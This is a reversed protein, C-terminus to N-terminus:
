SGPSADPAPLPSLAPLPGASGGEIRSPRGDPGPLCPDPRSAAERGGPTPPYVCAGCALNLRLLSKRHDIMSEYYKNKYAATEQLKLRQVYENVFQLGRAANADRPIEDRRLELRNRRPNQAKRDYRRVDDWTDNVADYAAEVEAAVANERSALRARTQAVIQQAKALNGQQRNYIPMPVTLGVAWGVRNPLVPSYTYPQALLTVDDLRSARVADVDALARCLDWRQAQLDPRNAFAVQKLWAMRERRDADTEDCFHREDYIRGRLRIAEPDPLNLLLALQRRKDRLTDDADDAEDKKDLLDENADNVKRDATAAADSDPPVHQRALQARERRATCLRRELGSVERAHAKVTEQAALTEVFATCLSDAQIRVFNQLNWEASRLACVASKVRTRRKGSVDMPYAVNVDAQMPALVRYPVLQM